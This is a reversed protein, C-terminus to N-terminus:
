REVIDIAANTRLDVSEAAGCPDPMLVTPLTIEASIVAPGLRATNPLAALAIIAGGSPIGVFSAAPACTRAGHLAHRRRGTGMGQEDGGQKVSVGVSLLSVDVFVDISRANEIRLLVIREEGTKSIFAKSIGLKLGASKTAGELTRHSAVSAVVTLLAMSMLRQSM